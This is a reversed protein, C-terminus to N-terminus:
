SNVALTSTYVGKPIALERMLELVHRTGHVNIAEAEARARERDARQVGIRYWGAVHFVGDTGVMADRMSEKQTVDGEYLTVGLDALEKARARSRVVANVEHGAARLQRAM